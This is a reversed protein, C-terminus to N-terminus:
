GGHDRRRLAFDHRAPASTSPPIHRCSQPPNEREENQYPRRGPPPPYFQKKRRIGAEIVASGDRDSVEYALCARIGAQEVVDAIIDVSGDVANPSAHHDVVCTTANRIADAM